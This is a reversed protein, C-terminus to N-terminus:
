SSNASERKALENEMAGIYDAVFTSSGVHGVAADRLFKIAERPKKAWFMM